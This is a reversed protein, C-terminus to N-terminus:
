KMILICSSAINKKKTKYEVKLQELAQECEQKTKYKGFSGHEPTAGLVTFTLVWVFTANM